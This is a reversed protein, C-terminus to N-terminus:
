LQDILQLVTQVSADSPMRWDGRPSLSISGVKPGDPLCSRKFQQQYFRTYFRHLAVKIAQKDLMPYAYQCLVFIKEVGYGFRLVYYMIFDNLDYKGISDETKQAIQGDQNPTLEPSIPTDIIAYLTKKLSENECTDAYTQCLFRVLTKPISSNVGYMSMHDGNYTCWGLALESMDGTGVVIGHHLNAADMLIYTRMRAQANEYTTDQAGQYTGPHGIQNLHLKVGEQIEIEHIECEMQEMLQMANTYTLKTTHGLSPMTYAYIKADKVYQKALHCVILALTSDLGGSIGIIMNKVGIKLLRSALGRAQITLIEQCREMRLQKSAPVFPLPSIPYAYQQLLQLVETYSQTQEKTSQIKLSQYTHSTPYDKQVLRNAEIEQLDILTTHMTGENTYMQEYRHSGCSYVMHHGSFVLDTSSEAMGSSVYVYCSYSAASLHQVMQRRYQQKGIIEDSASPNVIVNAGEEIAYMSPPIPMWGDECIDCALRLGNNEDCFLYDTGFPYEKGEIMITAQKINQGSTFWRAEYFERYNPIYQKPIFGIIQQNSIIAVVNYLAHQFRIPLGIVYTCFPKSKKVIQFLGNLAQQLLDQQFFLDGCTYGTIALEGFVVLGEDIKDIEEIIQEVNYQVDSIRMKPQCTIIKLFTNKM